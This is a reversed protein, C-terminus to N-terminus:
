FFLPSWRCRSRLILFSVVQVQLANVEAVLKEERAKKAERSKRM